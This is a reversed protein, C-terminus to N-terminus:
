LMSTEATSCLPAINAMEAVAVNCPGGSRADRFWQDKWVDKFANGLARATSNIPNAPIPLRFRTNLGRVSYEVKQLDRALKLVDKRATPDRVDILHTGM